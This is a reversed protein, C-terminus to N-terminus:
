ERKLDFDKENRGPRVDFTLETNENYRAPLSEETVDQEPSNPTDYLKKKRVFKPESISVKMAGVPVKVSYHGDKIKGGATATKGDVPMFTIMGNAIPKGDVKVTGSVRAENGGCGALALGVLIAAGAAAKGEIRV